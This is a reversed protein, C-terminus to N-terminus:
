GSCSIVGAVVSCVRGPPNTTVPNYSNTAPNYNVSGSGFGVGSVTGSLTYNTSTNGGTPIQGISIFGQQATTAIAQMSDRNMGGWVNYLAQREGVQAIAVRENSQAQVRGLLYQVIGPVWQSLANLTTAPAALVAEVWTKEREVKPPAPINVSGSGGVSPGGGIRGTVFGACMVQALEGTFKACHEIAGVIGTSQGLAADRQTEAIRMSANLMMAYNPDIRPDIEQAAVPLASALLLSILTRKM